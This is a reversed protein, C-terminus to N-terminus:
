CPARTSPPPSAFGSLVVNSGYVKRVDRVDLFAQPIPQDTSKM